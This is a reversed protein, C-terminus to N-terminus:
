NAFPVVIAIRLEAQGGSKAPIKDRDSDVPELDGFNSFRFGATIELEAPGISISPGGAVAFRSNTEWEVVANGVRGTVAPRAMIAHASAPILFFTIFDACVYARRIMM